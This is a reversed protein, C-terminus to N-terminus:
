ASGKPLPDLFYTFREEEQPNSPAIKRLLPALNRQTLLTRGHAVSERATDLTKEITQEWRSWRGLDKFPLLDIDVEKFVKIEEELQVTLLERLNNEAYMAEIGHIVGAPEDIYQPRPLDKKRQVAAMQEIELETAERAVTLQGSKQRVMQDLTRTIAVPIRSPNRLISLQKHVWRAGDEGGRLTEIRDEIAELAIRLTWLSERYDKEAIDREFQRAQDTFDVGFYKSGCDKGINTELGTKTTVLYGRTHPTHCDSLGCRVKDGFLYRGIISGLEHEKPDLNERFGIRGTVDEWSAVKVLGKDTNLTIM